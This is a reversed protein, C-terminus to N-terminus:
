SGIARWPKPFIRWHGNLYILGDFAMGLDKGPEVFKFRYIKLGPKLKAAVEKWGGPFDAAAGKWSKMEDSTASFVKVETQGPKPAIVLKGADWAPQYAADLKSALDPEFVNAIDGSTPRLQKSLAACDAGPQVFEKLLITAAAETGPFPPDAAILRTNFAITITLALILRILFQSEMTIKGM